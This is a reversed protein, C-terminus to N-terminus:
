YPIYFLDLGLLNHIDCKPGIAEIREKISNHIGEPFQLYISKLNTMSSLVIKDIEKNFYPFSYGIVILTEISELNLKEISNNLITKTQDEWAYRIDISYSSDSSMCERYLKIGEMIHNSKENFISKFSTGIHGPQSTGSYGNFHYFQKDNFTIKNLVDDKNNCYDYFAKEFQNDYNWTLIKINSPISINNFSDPELISAFFSDYRKDVHNLGQEITFFATIIAKLKLLKQRDDKIFLKKAYTDISAHRKSEILLWNLSEIFEKNASEELLSSQIIGPIKNKEEINKIMLEIRDPFQSVVPLAQASAGAGIYYAINKLMFEKVTKYLGLM